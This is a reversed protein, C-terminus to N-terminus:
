DSVQELAATLLEPRSGGDPERGKTKDCLFKRRIEIHTRFHSVLQLSLRSTHGCRTRIVRRLSARPPMDIWRNPRILMDRQNLIIRASIDRRNVHGISRHLRRPLALM